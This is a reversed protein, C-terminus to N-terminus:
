KGASVLDKLLKRLVTSRASWAVNLCGIGSGRCRKVRGSGAFVTRGVRPIAAGIAGVQPPRPLLVAPASPCVHGFWESDGTLM